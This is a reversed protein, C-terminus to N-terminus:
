AWFFFFLGDLAADLVVRPDFPINRKLDLQVRTSQENPRPSFAVVSKPKEGSDPHATDLTAFLNDLLIRKSVV